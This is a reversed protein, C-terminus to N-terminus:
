RSMHPLQASLIVIEPSAIVTMGGEIELFQLTSMAIPKRDANAIMMAGNALTEIFGDFPYPDTTM